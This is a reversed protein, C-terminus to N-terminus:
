EWGHDVGNVQRPAKTVRLFGRQELSPLADRLDEAWNCFQYDSDIEKVKFEVTTLFRLHAVTSEITADLDGDLTLSTMCGEFGVHELRSDHPCVEFFAGLLDLVCASQFDICRLAAGFVCQHWHHNHSYGLRLHEVGCSGPAQLLKNRLREFTSLTLSSLRTLDIQPNVMYYSLFHNPVDSLLLSRLQPRWVQSKPWPERQNRPQIFHLRSISMEKLSATESFLSLLERPSEIVIGRLHVAELKPSSFVDILASKMRRGMNTWNMSFKGEGNWDVPSNETLSIRKLDLLQLVLALTRGTMVWPAHRQQLYEGDVSNCEFSTESGVLVICLEEVLPAIHPSSTLLQYFQQCPNCSSRPPLIEIKRFIYRRTSSVFTRAALSCSKLDPIDNEDEYINDVIIDVLEQPLRSM